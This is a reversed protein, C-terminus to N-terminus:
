LFSFSVHSAACCIFGGSALMLDFLDLNTIKIVELNCIVQFAKCMDLFFLLQYNVHCPIFLCRQSRECNNLFYNYGTFSEYYTWMISMQRSVAVGMCYKKLIENEGVFVVHHVSYIIVISTILCLLLLLYQCHLFLHYICNFVHILPLM